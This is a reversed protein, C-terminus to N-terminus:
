VTMRTFKVDKVTFFSDDLSALNNLNQADFFNYFGTVAGSFSTGWLIDKFASVFWFGQSDPAFPGDIEFPLLMQAEYVFSRNLFHIRDSETVYWKTDYRKINLFQDDSSLFDVVKTSSSDYGFNIDYKHLKVGDSIREAFYWSGDYYSLSVPTFVTLDGTLAHTDVVTLNKEMEVVYPTVGNHCLVWYRGVADTIDIVVDTDLGFVSNVVSFDEVLVGSSTFSYSSHDTRVISSVDRHDGTPSLNDRDVLHYAFTVNDLVITDTGYNKMDVAVRFYPKMTVVLTFEDNFPQVTNFTIEGKGNDVSYKESSVLAGLLHNDNIRYVKVSYSDSWGGATAKYTKYDLTTTKENYRSLIIAATGGDFLPQQKSYYNSNYDTSRDHTIGYKIDSTDPIVGEHVFLMEGVYHNPDDVEQPQFFMVYRGPEYYEHRIGALQPSEFTTTSGKFTVEYEMYRHFSEINDFNVTYWELSEGILSSYIKMPLSTYSGWTEGDDSFRVRFKFSTGSKMIVGFRIGKFNKLESLDVINSYTGSLISFNDSSMIDEVVNDRTSNVSGVIGGVKLHAGRTDNSIKKMVLNDFSETDALKVTFVPLEDDGDVAEVSELAQTLSYQSLNDSGDSILIIMRKHDPYSDKSAILRNSSYILADNIQSSGFETLTGLASNLYIMDNTPNKFTDNTVHPFWVMDSRVIVQKTATVDVPLGSLRANIELIAYDREQSEDTIVLDESTGMQEQDTSEYFKFSAFIRTGDPLPVETEDDLQKWAYFSITQGNDSKNPSTKFTDVLKSGVKGIPADIRLFYKEEYEDDSESATAPDSIAYNDLRREVRVENGSDDTILAGNDYEVWGQVALSSNINVVPGCEIIAVSRPTHKHYVSVTKTGGGELPITKDYSEYSVASASGSNLNITHTHDPVIEGKKYVVTATTEGIGSENVYCEHFHDNDFTTRSIAVTALTNDIAFDNTEEFLYSYEQENSTIELKGSAFEVSPWPNDINGYIYEDKWTVEAVCYYRAKMNRLLPHSYDDLAYTAPHSGLPNNRWVASQYESRDIPEFSLDIGLPEKLNVRPKPITESGSLTSAIFSVTYSDIGRGFLGYVISRTHADIEICEPSECPPPGDGPSPPHFIPRGIFQNSRLRTWAYGPLDDPDASTGETPREESWRALFEATLGSGTIVCGMNTELLDPGVVDIFPFARNISEQLDGVVVTYDVGECFFSNPSATCYFYFDELTQDNESYELEADIKAFFGRYSSSITVTRTISKEENSIKDSFSSAYTEDDQEANEGTFIPNFIVGDALGDVTESVSPKLNGGSSEFNVITGDNVPYEKMWSVYASMDYHSDADPSLTKTGRYEIELPSKYYVNTINVVKRDDSERYIAHVQLVGVRQLKPLTLTAVGSSIELIQSSSVDFSSLYDDALLKNEIDTDYEDQEEEQGVASYILEGGGASDNDTCTYVNLDEDSMVASTIDRIGDYIKIELEGNRMPSDKHEVNFTLVVNEDKTAYTGACSLDFEEGEDDECKFTIFLSSSSTIRTPSAFAIMFEPLVMQALQEGNERYFTMVPYITYDKLLYSGTGSSVDTTSDDGSNGSPPYGEELETAISNMDTFAYGDYVWVEHAINFDKPPVYYLNDEVVIEEVPETVVEEIEGSVEARAAEKADLEAQERPSLNFLSKSLATKLDPSLFYDETVPLLRIAGYGDTTLLEISNRRVRHFDANYADLGSSPDVQPRDFENFLSSDLSRGTFIPTVDVLNATIPLSNKLDFKNEEEETAPFVVHAHNSVLFDEPLADSIVFYGGETNIEVIYTFLVGGNGPESDYSKLDDNIEIHEERSLKALDTASLYLVTDGDNGDSILFLSEQEEDEDDRKLPPKKNVYFEVKTGDPMNEGQSNVADIEFRATEDLFYLNSLIWSDLPTFNWEIMAGDYCQVFFTIDGKQEEDLLFIEFVETLDWNSEVFQPRLTEVVTGDIPMDYYFTYDDLILEDPTDVVSDVLFNTNINSKDLVNIRRGTSFGTNDLVDVSDDGSSIISTPYTRSTDDNNASYFRIFDKVSDQLSVNMCYDSSPGNDVQVMTPSDTAWLSHWQTDISQQDHLIEKWGLNVGYVKYTTGPKLNKFGWGIVGSALHSSITGSVPNGDDDYGTVDDADDIDIIVGRVKKKVSVNLGDVLVGGFKVFDFLTEGTTREGLREILKSAIKERLDFIDNWGSSGSSDMVLSVILDDDSLVVRWDSTLGSYGYIRADQDVAPQYYVPEGVDILETDNFTGVVLDEYEVQNGISATAPPTTIQGTVQAPDSNIIKSYADFNGRVKISRTIDDVQVWTVEDHSILANTGGDHYGFWSAYNNENGGTQYVVFCYGDIPTLMNEINFDFEYWGAEDIDSSDITSSAIPTSYPKGNIDSYYVDMIITFVLESDDQRKEFYCSVGGINLDQQDFIIRQCMRNKVILTSISTNGTDIKKSGGWVSCNFTGIMTQDKPPMGAYYIEDGNKYVVRVYDDYYVLKPTSDIDCASVYASDTLDVWNNDDDRERYRVYGGEVWVVYAKDGYVFLDPNYNNNTDDVVLLVVDVLNDRRINHIAKNGGSSEMYILDFNSDDILKIQVDSLTGLSTIDSFPTTAPSLYVDVKSSTSYAVALLGTVVDMSLSTIASSETVVLIGSAEWMRSDSDRTKTYIKDDRSYSVNISSGNESIAFLDVNEAVTVPSFFRANDLDYEVCMLTSISNLYFFLVNKGDLAIRVPNTTSYETSDSPYWIGSNSMRMTIVGNATWAVVPSGSYALIIDESACDTTASLQLSELQIM